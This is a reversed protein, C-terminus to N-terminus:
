ALDAFRRETKRFYYMGLFLVGIAMVSSIALAGWHWPMGAIASRFGSLLGFIPNLALVYEAWVHKPVYTIVGNVKITTYLITEMPVPVFSLWLLIQAMFPIIFRFDRYSVTLASLLFAAGLAAALTLLALLPLLLIGLPPALWYGLMLLALVGFSVAMDVLGGLVTAGPIFLRPLYIKTLLAQQNILALGGMTVANNFLQWPLLGAFIIIAYYPKLDNPLNNRLSAMNGLVLTFIVMQLLPQLVAWAVGLVTQKYRVKVDRWVLFYLLERFQVIERWNVAIWGRHPAIITEVNSALEVPTADPASSADPPVSNASPESTSLSNTSSAM